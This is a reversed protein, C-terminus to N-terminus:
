AVSFPVEYKPLCRTCTTCTYSGPCMDTDSSPVFNMNSVVPVDDDDDDDDDADDAGDDVSTDGLRHWSGNKFVMPCHYHYPPSVDVLADLRVVRPPPALQRRLSLNHGTHELALAADQLTTWMPWLFPHWDRPMTPLAWVIRQKTTYPEASWNTVRFEVQTPAIGAEEIDLQRDEAESRDTWAEDSALAGPVHCVGYDRALDLSDRIEHVALHGTLKRMLVDKDNRWAARFEPMDRRKHTPRRLIIDKDTEVLEIADRLERVRM